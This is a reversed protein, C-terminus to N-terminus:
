PCELAKSAMAQKFYRAYGCADEGYLDKKKRDAGAQLLFAIVSLQQYQAAVMLPTSGREGAIRDDVPLGREHLFRLSKMAGRYSAYHMPTWVKTAPKQMDAGADALAQLIDAADNNIAAFVASRGGNGDADLPTALDAQAGQQLLYHVKDLNNEDAAQMLLSRGESDRSNVDTGARLRAQLQALTEAEEPIVASAEARTASAEDDGHDIMLYASLAVMCFLFVYAWLGKPTQKDAPARAKPLEYISRDPQTTAKPLEYISRDPQVAMLDSLTKKRGQGTGAQVPLVFEIDAGLVKIQLKWIVEVDKDDLLGSAPMDKPLSIKLDMGQAGHLIQISNLAQSWLTKSSTDEGRRDELVCLVEAKVPYYTGASQMRQGLPLKFCLRMCLDKVGTCPQQAMFLSTEGVRWRLFALRLSLWLLLVGILPFLLVLFRMNSGGDTVALISLPFTLLSWFIAFFGLEAGSSEPQIELKGSLTHGSTLASGADAGAGAAAVDAVEKDPKFWIAWLAWWAGLSILPFLTAFPFLFLLRKYRIQRDYVAYAPEQPDLWLTIHQDQNRAARLQAHVDRQYSGINDSSDGGINIRTSRYTQGNYQYEFEALVQWSTSEDEHERLELKNIHAQVAVLDAARWWGQLQKFMPYVGVAWGGVGFLVAFVLAFLSSGLKGGIKKTKIM